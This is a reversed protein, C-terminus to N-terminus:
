SMIQIAHLCCIWEYVPIEDIMSDLRSHTAPARCGDVVCYSERDWDCLYLEETM